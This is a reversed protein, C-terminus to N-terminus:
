KKERLTILNKIGDYFKKIEKIIRSAFSYSTSKKKSYLIKLRKSYDNAEKKQERLVRHYNKKVLSKLLSVRMDEKVKKKSKKM